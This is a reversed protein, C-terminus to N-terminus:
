TFKQTPTLGISFYDSDDELENQQLFLNYVTPVNPDLQKIFMKSSRHIAGLGYKSQDFEEDNYFVTLQINGLYEKIQDLDGVCTEPM